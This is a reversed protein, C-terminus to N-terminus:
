EAAEGIDGTPKNFKMTKKRQCPRCKPASTLLQVKTLKMTREKRLVDRGCSCRAYVKEGVIDYITLEGIKMGIELTM